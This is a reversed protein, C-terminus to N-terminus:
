TRGKKQYSKKREKENRDSGIIIITLSINNLNKQGTFNKNPTVPWVYTLKCVWLLTNYLLFDLQHNYSLFFLKQYQHFM